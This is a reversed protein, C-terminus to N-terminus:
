RGFRRSRIDAREAAGAHSSRRACGPRRRRTAADPQAASAARAAAAAARDGLNAPAARRGFRHPLNGRSQRNRHPLARRGLRRRRPHPNQRPHGRLHHVGARERGPRLLQADGAVARRQGLAHHHQQLRTGLPGAPRLSLHRSFEEVHLGAGGRGRQRQRAGGPRRDQRPHLCPSQELSRIPPTLPPGSADVAVAGGDGLTAACGDGNADAVLLASGSSLGAATTAAPDVTVNATQAATKVPVDVLKGVDSFGYRVILTGADGSPGSGAQCYVVTNPIPVAPLTPPPPPSPPWAGPNSPDNAYYILENLATVYGPVATTGPASPNEVLIIDGPAISRVISALQVYFAWGSAPSNQPGPPVGFALASNTLYPYLRSFGSAKLLRWNAAGTVGASDAGLATVIFSVTTNAGAPALASVNGVAWAGSQGTWGAALLLVEDGIKLGSPKGSLVVQSAPTGSGPNQWSGPPAPKQGPSVPAPMPTVQPVTAIPAFPQITTAAALEYVQPQQGPGPKSQVQLGQPLAVPRPGRVLGALTLLAGIGPRPRYGLIPVLQPLSEPLDATGLFAQNAARETYLTLIDSLYAWWEAIQLALDGSDPAPRWVLTGDPRTLQTEAPLPPQATQLLAGRFGDYDGWRYAISPQAPPNFVVLPFVGGSCPCPNDSMTGGHGARQAHRARAQQPRQRLPHDPQRRRRDPGANRHLDCIPRTGAVRRVSDRSSRTRGAGGGRARQAGAGSRLHVRRARLVRNSGCARRSRCRRRLFSPSRLTAGARRHFCLGSRTRLKRLRGHSLPEAFRDAGVAPGPRYRRRGSSRANHVRDALQRDLPLHHERAAGLDPVDHDRHDRLGLRDGGARPAPSVRFSCHAQRPQANRRGLRRDGAAPQPGFELGGALTGRGPEIRSIAEAALNGASGAGVRYTVAFSTGDAPILGFNGDGFRLTDGTDGDYDFQVSGDSRRQIPRYLAADLTFSKDFPQAELLRRVWTWTPGPASGPPNSVEALQIEPQPNPDTAGAPAPLWAVAGAALTHLYQPAQDGASGDPNMSRPGFRVVAPMAPDGKAPMVTFTESAVTLGQTGVVINGSVTTQALDRDVLMENAAAWNIQTVATPLPPSAQQTFVYDWLELSPPEASGSLLQVVQRLPAKGVGAATEILILQNAKFGFGHGHIYMSTAGAPLCQVSDDFWYAQIGAPSSNWLPNAPASGPPVAFRAALNPGTEFAIPSGDSAQAVATVGYPISDTGAAVDFQLFTQASVSPQPEYDVLRAHRVMSRRQTATTLTAEAAVRDQTYSLDDAVAAMAELLMMGFDAESREQWNPYRLASFDLLAQRFSLFDKALYDIPPRSSLPPPCAPPATECDVDSPCLAKFSFASTSFFPDLLPSALTLTYTSFDGPAAVRLALTVHQEDTGWDSAKVALVGVTAITDGGTITPAATLSGALAVSNLFHVVLQRRPM